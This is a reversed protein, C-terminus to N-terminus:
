KTQKLHGSHEFNACGLHLFEQLRDADRLIIENTKTVPSRCFPDVIGMEVFDVLM